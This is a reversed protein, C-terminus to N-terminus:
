VFEVLINGYRNRPDLPFYQVSILKGHEDWTIRNGVRKYIHYPKGWPSFKFELGEPVDRLTHLLPDNTHEIRM